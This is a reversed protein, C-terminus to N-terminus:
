IMLKVPCPLLNLDFNISGLGATTPSFWAPSLTISTGKPLTSRERAVGRATEITERGRRPKCEGGRAEARAGEGGRGGLRASNTPRSETTAVEVRHGMAGSGASSMWQRGGSSSGRCHGNGNLM